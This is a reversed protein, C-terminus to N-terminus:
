LGLLTPQTLLSTTNIQKQKTSETTVKTRQKPTALKNMKDITQQALAKQGTGVGGITSLLDTLANQANTKSQGLLTSLQGQMQTMLNYSANGLSQAQANLGQVQPSNSQLGGLTSNIQDLLSQFTSSQTGGSGGAGVSGSGTSGNGSSGGVPQTLSPDMPQLDPNPSSNNTLGTFYTIDSGSGIYNNGQSILKQVYDGWGGQTADGIYNYLGSSGLDGVTIPSASNSAYFTASKSGGMNLSHLTYTIGSTQNTYVGTYAM